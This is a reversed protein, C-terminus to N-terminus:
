VLISCGKTLAILRGVMVKDLSVFHQQLFFSSFKTCCLGFLLCAATNAVTVIESGVVVRCWFSCFINWHLKNM